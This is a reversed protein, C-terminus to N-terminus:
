PRRALTVLFRAEGSLGHAPANALSEYRADYEAADMLHWMDVLLHRGAKISALAYALWRHGDSTAGGARYRLQATAIDTFGTQRLLPGLGHELGTMGLRQCAPRGANLIAAAAPHDLRVPDDPVNGLLLVGGPALAGALGALAGRKDPLYPLVMWAVVVDFGGYPAVGGTVPQRADHVFFRVNAGPASGASAVEIAATDADVGTVQARPYRRAIEHTFQGEGCGVDLVAWDALDPCTPLGGVRLAEDFWVNFDDRLLSFQYQLRRRDDLNRGFVYNSEAGFLQPVPENRGDM